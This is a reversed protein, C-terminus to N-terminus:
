NKIFTNTIIKKFINNKGNKKTNQGKKTKHYKIDIITKRPLYNLPKKIDLFVKTREKNAIKNNINQKGNNIKQIYKGSESLKLLYNEM